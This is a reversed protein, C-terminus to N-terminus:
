RGCVPCRSPAGRVLFCSSDVVDGYTLRRRSVRSRAADFVCCGRRGDGTDDCRRSRTRYPGFGPAAVDLVYLGPPLAPFRPQGKENTTVVQPGGILAESGVRVTAGPLAGGKHM